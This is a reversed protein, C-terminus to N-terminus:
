RDLSAAAYANRTIECWIVLSRFQDLDLGKPLEYNMSGVTAKLAAVITFPAAAIEDTTKPAAAASLRIELDSNRAVFFDDLRLVRTGDGLRYITAKGEAERDVEHVTATAVVQAASMESSLPEILATDIQQAVDVSWDGATTVKLAHTGKEASFGEAEKPCSLAYALKRPSERGSGDVSVVTFPASQCRWSLRWQLAGGDISFTKTTTNGSGSFSTVPVWYPQSRRAENTAPSAVPSAAGHSATRGASSRGCGVATSLLAVLVTVVATSRLSVRM